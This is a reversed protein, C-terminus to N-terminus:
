ATQSPTAYPWSIMTMWYPSCPVVARERQTASGRCRSGSTPPLPCRRYQREKLGLPGAGLCRAGSTGKWSNTALAGRTNWVSPRFHGGIHDILFGLAGVEREAIAPISRPGVFRVKPLVRKCLFCRGEVFSSTASLSARFGWSHRRWSHRPRSRLAPAHFAPTPGEAYPSSGHHRPAPWHLCRRGTRLGLGRSPKFTRRPRKSTSHEQLKIRKM